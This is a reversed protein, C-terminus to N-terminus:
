FEPFRFGGIEVVRELIVKRKLRLSLSALVDSSLPDAALSNASTQPVRTLSMPDRKCLIACVANWWRVSRGGPELAM